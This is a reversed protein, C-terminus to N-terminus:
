FFSRGRTPLDFFAFCKEPPPPVHLEIPLGDSSGSLHARMRRIVLAPEPV